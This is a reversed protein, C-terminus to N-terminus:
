AAPSIARRPHRTAFSGRPWMAASVWACYVRLDPSAPVRDLSDRLSELPYNVAGPAHGNAFEGPSRVMSCCQTPRPRNVGTRSRCTEAVVVDAAIMGAFKGSRQSRRIAPCLM